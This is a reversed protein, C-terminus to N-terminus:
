VYQGVVQVRAQGRRTGWLMGEGGPVPGWACLGSSSREAWPVAQSNGRGLHLRLEESPCRPSEWSSLVLSVSGLLGQAWSTGLPCSRAAGHGACPVFSHGPGM